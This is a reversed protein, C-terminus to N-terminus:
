KRQKVGGIGRNRKGENNVRAIDQIVVNARISEDVLQSVVFM